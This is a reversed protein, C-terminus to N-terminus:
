PAWSTLRRARAPSTDTPCYNPPMSGDVGGSPSVIVDSTSRRQVFRLTGHAKYSICRNTLCAGTCGGHSLIHFDLDRLPQFAILPSFRCSGVAGCRQDNTGYPLNCRTSLDASHAREPALPAQRSPRHERESRHIDSQQISPSAIM